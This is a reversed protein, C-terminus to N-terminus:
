HQHHSSVDERIKKILDAAADKGGLGFALGGALALMAVFGTFLTLMFQPAVGLHALAIIIAFIWVAWHAVSGILRASVVGITATLGGAVVRKLSDAIVAAIILIFVAVVVSPLYNLVVDGLFKNVEVLGLIDFSAVLFVVIVFWKILGGIFAGSDLKFGARTIVKEAGASQLVQDIKLTKIVQAVVRGIMVGIIWGAILIVIAIIIRPLYDIVGTGINQFSDSIQHGLVSVTNVSGDM